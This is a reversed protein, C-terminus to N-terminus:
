SVSKQLRAKGSKASKHSPNPIVVIGSTGARADATSVGEIVTSTVITQILCKKRNESNKLYPNTQQLSRKAM